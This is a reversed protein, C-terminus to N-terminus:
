FQQDTKTPNLVYFKLASAVLQISQVIFRVFDLLLWAFSENEGVTMNSFFWRKLESNVFASRSSQANTHVPQM